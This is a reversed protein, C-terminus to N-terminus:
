KLGDFFDVIAAPAQQPWNSPYFVGRTDNDQQHPCWHVVNGGDCGQYELCKLSEPQVADTQLQCGNEKIRLDRTQEGRSFPIMEDHPNHILLAASPGPCDTLISDGAVTASARVHGGRQCAITNAMVAGDSYGAVFIRDMDVCYLNSVAEVVDDFYPVGWSFTGQASRIASPYAVLYGKAQQDIGIHSKLEDTIGLRGYFVVILPTPQDPKYGIPVTLTVPREAGGSRIGTL